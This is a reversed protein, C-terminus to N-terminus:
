LVLRRVVEPVSSHWEPLAIGYADRLRSCDLRSNAPRKAATAYDITRIRRVQASPGGLAASSSFIAEAFDAWTAEGGSAVHFIGRQNPDDSAVLNEVVGLIGEALDLASTPNGQQDAIVAVEEQQGALRLVTKAFNAGFPSYVWAARLIASNPQATLVAREGALKSAGYIGTPVTADTEVYPANKSGDFVYDTSLHVLPVGLENAAEAVVRAGRENVAFALDRESEARDVATYAAASVISDPSAAALAQRARAADGALDLEPRGVPAIEHGLRSGCEVLARVVQGQRGTVAIRM